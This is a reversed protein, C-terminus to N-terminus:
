TRQGEQARGRLRQLEEPPDAPQAAAVAHQLATLLDEDYAPLVITREATRLELLDGAPEVSEIDVLELRQADVHLHHHRLAIRVEGSDLTFVWRHIGLVGVILTGVAIVAWWPFGTLIGMVALQRSVLALFSSAMALVIVWAIGLLLKEARVPIEADDSPELLYDVGDPQDVHRISYAAM